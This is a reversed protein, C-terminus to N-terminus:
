HSGELYEMVVRSVLFSEDSLAHTSKKGENERFARTSFIWQTCIIARWLQTFLIFFVPTPSFPHMGQKRSRVPHGFGNLNTESTLRFLRGSALSSTHHLPSPVKDLFGQVQALCYDSITRSEDLFERVNIQDVPIRQIWSSLLECFCM